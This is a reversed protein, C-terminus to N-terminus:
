RCTISVAPSTESLHTNGSNAFFTMSLDYHQGAKGAKWTERLVMSRQSAAPRVMKVASKGGDSREWHYNFLFGKPLPQVFTITASFITEVPCGKGTYQKRNAAMHIAQFPNDEALVPAAAVLLFSFIGLSVLTHRVNM